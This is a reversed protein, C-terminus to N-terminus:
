EEEMKKVKDQLDSFKEKANDLEESAATKFKETTEHIMEKAKDVLDSSDGVTESFEKKVDDIAESAAEKAKTMLDSGDGMKESTSKIAEYQDEFISKSDYLLRGILTSKGDDVSGATTFRLLETHKEM